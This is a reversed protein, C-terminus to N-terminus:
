SRTWAPRGTIGVPPLPFPKGHQTVYATLDYRAGPFGILKWGAMDRNGGYIPDSFFGEMVNQLLLKFYSKADVGDLQQDGSALRKLFADQDDGGLRAFTANSARQTAKDIGAIAARYMQAPTYRSQYGQTKEGAAWPGQMYWSAAKGFDGALQRDIFIPVGAEVAGPGLEDKPIMREAAAEVFAAEPGTFFDYRHGTDAAQPYAATNPTWPPGSGRIAEAGVGLPAAGLLAGASLLRRRSM